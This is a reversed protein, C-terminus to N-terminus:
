FRNRKLDDLFIRLISGPITKLFQFQLPFLFGMKEWPLDGSASRERGNKITKNGGRFTTFAMQGMGFTGGTEMLRLRVEDPM